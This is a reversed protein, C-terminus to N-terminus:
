SSTSITAHEEFVSPHKICINSKDGRGITIGNNKICASKRNETKEVYYIHTLFGNHNITILDRDVIYVNKTLKKGNLVVDEGEIAGNIRIRQKHLVFITKFIMRIQEFSHITLVHNDFIIFYGEMSIGGVCFERNQDKLWLM